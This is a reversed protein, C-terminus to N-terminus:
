SAEGDGKPNADAQFQADLDREFRQLDEPIPLGEARMTDLIQKLRMMVEHIDGQDGEMENVLLSVEAQYEEFSM